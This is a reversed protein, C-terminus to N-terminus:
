IVIRLDASECWSDYRARIDEEIGPFLNVGRIVCLVFAGDKHAEARPTLYVDATGDVQPVIAYQGKSIIPHDRPMNTPYDMM